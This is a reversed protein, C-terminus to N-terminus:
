SGPAGHRRNLYTELTLHPGALRPQAPAPAAAAAGGGRVDIRGIHVVIDPAPPSPAVRIARSQPVPRRHPWATLEPNGGSRSPHGAVLRTPRPNTGPHGRTVLRVEEGITVANQSPVETNAGDPSGLQDASPLPPPDSAPQTPPQHDGITMGPAGLGRAEPSRAAADATGPPGAPALWHFQPRATARFPSGLQPAFMDGDASEHLPELPDPVAPEAEFRPRLRPTVGMPRLQRVALRDLFDVM